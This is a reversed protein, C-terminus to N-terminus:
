KRKVQGPPVVKAEAFKNLANFMDIVHKEVVVVNEYCMNHYTVEADFMRPADEGEVVCEARLTFRYTKDM